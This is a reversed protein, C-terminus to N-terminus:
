YASNPGLISEIASIHTRLIGTGLYIDWRCSYFDFEGLIKGQYFITYLPTYLPNTFPHTVNFEITYGKLKLAALQPMTLKLIKLDIKTLM